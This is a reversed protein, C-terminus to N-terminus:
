DNYYADAEKDEETQDGISLNLWLLVVDDNHEEVAVDEIGLTMPLGVKRWTNAIRTNKGAMRAVKIRQGFDEKTPRATLNNVM